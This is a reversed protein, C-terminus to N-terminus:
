AAAPGRGSISWPLTLAFTTGADRSTSFGIQGRLYQEAFLKMAFTGQGRGTGGKTTFFRQFIRPAIEPPIACENWVRLEVGHPALAVQLQVEGGEPTAEFANVLMNTVVRRLLFGDTELAEGNTLEPARLRKGAAAQHHQFLMVLEAILAPVPLREVALRVSAPTASSLARQVELERALRATLAQVDRAAGEAEAPDADRLAESAGSLGVVVNAIDHLFARELAARRSERSIDILTILEFRLGDLHVPASRVQFQLDIPKGQRKVQLLCEREVPQGTRLSSSISLAAGCSACAHGTGCGGPATAAHVCCFAEGPRLGLSRHPDDVGIATLYAANMAVVQRQENLVAVAGAWTRLMAEVIPSHAVFVIQEELLEPSAREAPLFFTSPGRSESAQSM